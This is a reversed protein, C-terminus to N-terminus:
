NTTVNLSEHRPTYYCYYISNLIAGCGMVYQEHRKVAHRDKCVDFDMPIIRFFLYM